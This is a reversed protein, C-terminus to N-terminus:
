QTSQQASNQPSADDLLSDIFDSEKPWGSDLAKRVSARAIECANDRITSINDRVKKARKEGPSVGHVLVSRASYIESLENYLRKRDSASSGAFAAGNLAFRRRAEGMETGGLLLAELAVTYDVLAESPDERAMALAVRRISLEMPSTPAGVAGDPIGDAIPLVARIDQECLTQLSQTPRKPMLLPQVSQGSWLWLPERIMAGFGAGAFEIGFLHLALLLKQCRSAMTYFVATKPQRSRVELVVREQMWTEASMSGPLASAVRSPQFRINQRRWFLHGLEDRTLHVLSCDEVAVGSAPVDLGALPVRGLYTVEDDQAFTVVENALRGALLDNDAALSPLASLYECLCHRLLMLAYFLPEWALMHSAIEKPDFQPTPLNSILEPHELDQALIGPEYNSAYKIRDGFQQALSDALKEGASDIFPKTVEIFLMPHFSANAAFLSHERQETTSQMGGETFDAVPVPLSISQPLGHQTARASLQARRTKLWEAVSKVLEPVVESESNGM